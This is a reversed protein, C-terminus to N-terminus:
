KKFKNAVIQAIDKAGSAAVKLNHLTNSKRRRNYHTRKSALEESKHANVTAIHKQVKKTHKAKAKMKETFSKSKRRRMEAQQSASARQMERAHQAQSASQAEKIFTKYDKM